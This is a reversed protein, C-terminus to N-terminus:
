SHETWMGKLKRHAVGQRHRQVAKIMAAWAKAKCFAHFGTPINVDGSIKRHWSLQDKIRGVKDHDVTMEKLQELSLILEFKDLKDMRDQLRKKCKNAAVRKEKATKADESAQLLLFSQYTKNQDQEWAAGQLYHHCEPSLDSTYDVVGSNLRQDHHTSCGM